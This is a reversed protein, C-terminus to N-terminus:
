KIVLRNNAEQYWGCPFTNTSTDVDIWGLSESRATVIAHDYGRGKKDLLVVNSEIGVARLLSCTFISYDDCDGQLLIGKNYDQVLRVPSTFIEATVPDPIYKMNARVWDYIASISDPIGAAIDMALLRVEESKSAKDLLYRVSNEIDQLNNNEIVILM